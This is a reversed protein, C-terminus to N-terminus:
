YAAEKTKDADSWQIHNANNHWGIIRYNGPLNFLNPKFTVQGVNFLNDGLKEWDSNADFIGYGLEMWETVSYAMRVGATNDPFEITPSGCFIRGLFQSTEDNAAENNDFYGTPDLKGVTVVADGGSLDQEYWLETLHANEDDDTDRNVNSYLALDDEIGSGKGAELHLFARSNSEEFEKGITIDASYSGDTRDDKRTNDGANVNNAGQIIMTAGVGIDLGQLVQDPSVPSRSLRDDIKSLKSEYGAIQQQQKQVLSNQSQIYADQEAVKKELVELRAQIQKLADETGIDDAFVVSSLALLVVMVLLCVSSLKM